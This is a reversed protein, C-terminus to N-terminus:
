VFRRSFSERHEQTTMRDFRCQKGEPVRRLPDTRHAENAGLGDSNNRARERDRDIVDARRPYCQVSRLEGPTSPAAGCQKQSHSIGSAYASAIQSPM